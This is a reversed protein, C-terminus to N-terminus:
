DLHDLACRLRALRCHRSSATTEFMPETNWSGQHMLWGKRFSFPSVLAFAIPAVEDQVAFVEELKRDYHEAWRASFNQGATGRV